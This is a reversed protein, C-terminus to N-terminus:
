RCRDPMGDVGFVKKAADWVALFRKVEAVEPGETPAGDVYRFLRVEHATGNSTLVIRCMGIDNCRWCGYKDQLQDFAMQGAIM